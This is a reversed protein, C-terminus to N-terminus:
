VLIDEQYRRINSRSISFIYFGTICVRVNLAPYIHRAAQSINICGIIHTTYMPQKQWNFIGQLFIPCTCLIDSLYKPAKYVNIMLTCNTHFCM